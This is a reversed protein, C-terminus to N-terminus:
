EPDSAPPLKGGRAQADSLLRIIVAPEVPKVFHRDFGAQKSRRLDEAQGWGTVAALVAARTEPRGRLQRAVEYGDLTPLHLDLLVVQPRFYEAVTLAAPGDYAVRVEYGALEVLMALTDAADVNDDVVLVRLLSPEPARRQGAGTPDPALMWPEDGRSDRFSERARVGAYPSANIIISPIDRSNVM